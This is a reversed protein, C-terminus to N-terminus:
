HKKAKYLYYAGLGSLLIIVAGGVMYVSIHESPDSNDSVVVSMGASGEMNQTSSNETGNIKSNAINVMTEFDFATDSEIVNVERTKADTVWIVRM